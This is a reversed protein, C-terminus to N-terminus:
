IFGRKYSDYNMYPLFDVIISSYPVQCLECPAHFLSSVLNSAQVSLRHESELQERLLCKGTTVLRVAGGGPAVAKRNVAGDEM